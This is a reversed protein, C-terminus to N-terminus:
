TLGPLAFRKRFAAVEAATPMGPRAGVRMCCLAGAASSVELVEQWALGLAIGATFAGHFADGAGTTDVAQILFAPLAGRAGERSWILGREGLTIVVCPAVGSLRDLAGAADQDGLYQYAFKESCVLYDVRGMLARTGDHLSGADLVTPIGAKRAHAALSLSLAPEHGDFLMVKAAVANCDIADGPLAVTQGKYNVLARDGDPKVLIPTPSQGRVIWRTDVGEEQLEQLHREGYLDLGLYGAFAAKLGLRAILVAANAAPGGGFAQFDDAFLKEDSAPHHPVTFILDYSAHGACLVDIVGSSSSHSQTM